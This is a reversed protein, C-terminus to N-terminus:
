DERCWEERILISRRVRWRLEYLTRAREFDRRRLAEAYLDRLEDQYARLKALATSKTTYM